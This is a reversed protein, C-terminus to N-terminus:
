LETPLTLTTGSARQTVHVVIFDAPTVPALGIEAIIEGAEIFDGERKIWRLLRGETMDYGMKPMVIDKAM